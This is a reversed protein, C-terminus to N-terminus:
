YYNHVVRRIEYEKRGISSIIGSNRRTRGAVQKFVPGSMEEDCRLCPNISGDTLNSPERKLWSRLCPRLCYRGTNRINYYWTLACPGTFGYHELCRTISRGTILFSCRRAITTLDRYRLYVSLDQLTSCTGCSGYHTVIYGNRRAESVSSFTRILYTEKRADLYKLACVAGEKAPVPHSTSHSRVAYPDDQITIPNIITKHTFAAIAAEMGPDDALYVDGEKAGGPADHIFRSYIFNPGAMFLFAMLVVTLSGTGAIGAIKL